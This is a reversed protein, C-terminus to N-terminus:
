LTVRVQKLLPGLVHEGQGDLVEAEIKTSDEMRLTLQLHVLPNQEHDRSCERMTELGDQREEKRRRGGGEEERGSWEWTEEGRRGRINNDGSKCARM